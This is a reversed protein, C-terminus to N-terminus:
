GRRRQKQWTIEEERSREDERKKEAEKINKRRRQKKWRREVERSREHGRKNEAETM